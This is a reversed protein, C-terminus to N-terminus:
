KPLDSEARGLLIQDFAAGGGKAGLGLSRVRWPKKPLAWLDVRVVQWTSPPAGAQKVVTAGEMATPEGAVFSFGGYHSEALRLTIGKTQPSLAKWAFQLWRYQGPQPHEVIEFDWNPVVHGFPPQWAPGSTGEGTLALCKGGSFAGEYKFLFPHETGGAVMCRLDSENEDFLVATPRRAVVDPHSCGLAEGHFVIEALRTNGCVGWPLALRFRAAEAPKAFMHTHVASDSRLPQIKVWLEKAADWYDISADRLWSEPHAPDEVLTVGTVKMQTRYADIVIYNWPSTEAFTGVLDWPIWPEAPADAKGDYLMAAKQGPTERLSTEGQSTLLHIVPTTKALLNASLDAPKQTANGWGAIATTPAGDDALIKGRMDSAGPTLRTRWKPAYSKDLRCVTGEWTALLLSGDALWAPVALAKMDKELLVRGDLDTVYVTGLNSAAALRGDGSFRPSHLLDDGHFIWQLGDAVSYLKLLDETVVAILSGDASLGFDEAATPIVRVIKGGRLVFLKGGDAVNYLVCTKADASTRVIRVEGSRGISQRWKPAGDTAGYGTATTGEIVVLTAADLALVKGSHRQHQFWDQRWLLKGDASWVALGLDGASAVWRGGDGVAFSNVHDRVLAPVFRHPLRQPLGYLAFRRQLRGDAGVLYLHYGQASTLDFGQVAVGGGLAMPEFAFYHGARQRWRIKGTEPDVAYLNHDWNMTNMVALKGNDTIVLDRVHPGFSEDAPTFDSATAVSRVGGAPGAAWEALRPASALNLLDLPASRAEPVRIVVTAAKGSLMEVAELAVAGPSANLPLVFDDGAGQSGASVYQQELVGGDATLLRVRVPVAAAIAEGASDKVHVRWWMTEGPAVRTPGEVQVRGIAAPLIAFVRAPMNRCDAQVMGGAPRVQKGAFVDYVARGEAAEIKLPVLQPVLSTCSLTVRWLHGPELDGLTSNNVVFLYRGDEARRETIFVEPNEVEAAPRVKALAKALKAAAAKAYAAMRWYAHDDAAPSPDKELHDFSWGLPVFDKVLEPRCTGDALVAVGAEQAAKLASALGPEMQVTQGVVLVAQYRKLTDPKLDEAFVISAPRHAYLCAIYAEMVRAFHRGTTGAWDDIKYMRGSAVIAVKDHNQMSVLWPGYAGLVGNLSRYVSCTGNWSMRPDDTNGKLAFHWPPVPDSCGVGNAGRMLMQWLTTLIQDGTGADNWVEPHGWAHKGPRKYFDVGFPAHYPLEIQEWQAQLDSEGVNALTVPPYSEVNRFPCAVATVRGPALEQLKKNFMAQADVAYSLRYGAVKDLVDDWAGTAAAKKLAAACATKEEATKAAAAGRDGFVWWNSAWSWGRFAPYGKLAETTTILDKIIQEPKRGDFGPGGLPLGADNGMLIAMQRIGSASYGSMAQLLSPASVLKEPSVAQPDAELSKMFDAVEARPAALAFDGMEGPHGLRDVLLNFGLRETRRFAATAIDPADWAGAQPYTARYDGYITTLLSAPSM